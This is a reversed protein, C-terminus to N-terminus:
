GCMIQMVIFSDKFTQEILDYFMLGKQNRKKVDVMINNKYFFLQEELTHTHTKGLGILSSSDDLLSIRYHVTVFNIISNSM